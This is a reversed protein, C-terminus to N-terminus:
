GTVPGLNLPAFLPRWPQSWFRALYYLVKVLFAHAPPKVESLNRMQKIKEISFATYSLAIRKESDLTYNSIHCIANQEVVLAERTPSVGVSYLHSPDSFTRMIKASTERQKLRVYVRIRTCM